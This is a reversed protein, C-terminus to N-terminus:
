TEEVTKEKYVIKRIAAFNLMVTGFYNITFFILLAFDFRKITKGYFIQVLTQLPSLSYLLDGGASLGQVVTIVIFIVVSLALFRKQVFLRDKRNDSLITLSIVDFFIFLKYVSFRVSTDTSYINAINIKDKSLFLIILLLLINIMVFFVYLQSIKQEKLNLAMAAVLITFIIIAIVNEGHFTRFYEIYRLAVAATRLLMLILFVINTFRTNVSLDCLIYAILSWILYSIILHVIRDRPFITNQYDVCLFDTFAGCFALAILSYNYRKTM